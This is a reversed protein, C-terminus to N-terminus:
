PHTLIGEVGNGLVALTVFAVVTEARCGCGWALFLVSM